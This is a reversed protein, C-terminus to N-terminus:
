YHKYVLPMQYEFSCIMRNDFRVQLIHEETSITAIVYEYKIEKPMKFKEGFIDLKLDSRIFRILHIYGDALTLDIKKLFVGADLKHLSIGETKVYDMPTKGALSSTHHNRNFFREFKGAERTLHAYSTFFQRRFFSQDFVQQFREIVGNRWPEGVPIFIIGVGLALCVRLVIGPSRPHRYSGHYSLENDLQVYDPLGITKWAHLLGRVVDEDGKTTGPSVAAMHTELDVANMSFFRGDNKIYRPGVLDAQQISDSFISRVDPYAKNKPTYCKKERAVNYRKLIRDITWTPPVELGLKKMEWQIAFAGIQSYSSSELRARIAVVQEEIKVPTKNAVNCPAKRRSKHWENEGADFRSKWEYFWKRSRGLTRCIENVSVGKSYLLIAEKRIAEEAAEDM